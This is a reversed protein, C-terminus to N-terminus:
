LKGFHSVPMLKRSLPLLTDKFNSIRLRPLGINDDLSLLQAIDGAFDDHDGIVEGVEIPFSM